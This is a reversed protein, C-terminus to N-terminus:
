LKLPSTTKKRCVWGTIIGFGWALFVSRWPHTPYDRQLVALPSSGAAVPSPMSRAFAPAPAFGPQTTGKPETGEQARAEPTVPEAYPSLQLKYGKKTAYAQTFEAGMFLIVSSYYIWLLVIVLSGAAGYASETSERGLYLGLGWKGITFLVATFVGGILAVKWPVILDPLIKFILMFLTSVVVFAVIMSLVVTVADPVPFLRGFGQTMAHVATTIVMSILLLFGLGLVMTLSLFRDRVLRWIGGGSKAKVEWITNLADQLQGFVGGAGFLLAIIGLTMAVPTSGMKRAETMSQLTQASKAGVLETMQRHVQQRVTTEDLVFGAVAIMIILLPALSFISYYALAAALRLAKDEMFDKFTSKLTSFWFKMNSRAM